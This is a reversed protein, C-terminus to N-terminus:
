IRTMIEEMIAQDVDKGRIIAWVATSVQRMYFTNMPRREKKYMQILKMVIDAREYLGSAECEKLLDNVLNKTETAKKEKKKFEKQKAYYAKNQEKFWEETYKPGFASVVNVPDGLEKGHCMYREYAEVPDEDTKKKIETLSYAGQGVLTPNAKKFDVRLAQEKKDSWILLSPIAIRM